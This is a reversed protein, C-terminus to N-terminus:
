PLSGKGGENAPIDRLPKHSDELPEDLTADDDERQVASDDLEPQTAKHSDHGM